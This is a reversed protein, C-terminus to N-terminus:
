SAPCYLLARATTSIFTTYKFMSASGFRGGAGCAFGALQAASFIAYEAMVPSCPRGVAVVGVGAGTPAIAAARNFRSVAVAASRVAACVDSAGIASSRVEKGIM